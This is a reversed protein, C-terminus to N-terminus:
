FFKKVYLLGVTLAGAAVILLMTWWFADGGVGEGAGPLGAVNMGFIGTILTMPLFVATLATLANLKRSTDEAVRAALEEQVLKARDQLEVADNLLFGLTDAVERLQHAEEETLTSQPRGILRQLLTREPTFNRRLRACTRRIQGLREGQEHIRGLLVHDEMDNVQEVLREVRERMAASRLEFLRTILDIGSDVCLGDRVAARMDDATKLPHTRASLVLRKTAYAWLAAVESPDADREFPLDSIVVALGDGTPELRCHSDHEEIADRLVEPIPESHTLWRQIPANALNLHLWTVCDEEALATGVQAARLERTRGDRPFQFACILGGQAIAAEIGPLTSGDQISSDL